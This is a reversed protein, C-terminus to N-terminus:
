GGFAEQIEELSLNAKITEINSIAILSLGADKLARITAKMQVKLAETIKENVAKPKQPLNREEEPVQEALSEITKPDAKIVYSKRSDAQGYEYSYGNYIASILQHASPCDENITGQDIFEMVYEKKSKALLVLAVSAQDLRKLIGEAARSLDVPITKKETSM